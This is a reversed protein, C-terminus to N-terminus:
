HPLYADHLQEAAVGEAIWRDIRADDHGLERLIARTHAGIKPMPNAIRLSTGAFRAYTPAPNDVPSGAPHDRLRIVSISEAESWSAREADTLERVGNRRIDEIYDVRHCGFGAAGFAQEWHGVPQEAIVAQLAAIRAAEQDAAVPAAALGPVARLRPLDEPLGTLVLWGDAARYLHELSHAGLVEQGQPGDDPRADATAWVFPAQVLQGGQALSTFVLDGGGERTRRLLALAIGYAGSYGTIYDICSAFGHLEPPKGRGGYRQQIGTAAQLVPDFGPLETWPGRRPGNFATLNLYVIGPNIRALSAHDIGLREAVGPRFNHVIVDAGAALQEFLRKGAEQKLDLIMSRKGQGVELHLMCATSPLFYPDPSDIKIVDAGYEALTRACCPGALVTSLDLVKIGALIPGRPAAAASGATSQTPDASHPPAPTAQEAAAQAHVTSAPVSAPEDDAGSDSATLRSAATGNGASGPVSRLLAALDGSRAPQPVHWREATRGLSTQVGLQRIPGHVPDDVQVTLAAADTEPAHLWEQTSRHVSFPVGHARMIPTWAAAPKRRFAATMRDRVIKRFERSLGDIDQINNPRTLDPWPPLDVMGDAILADYIGLAKVLQVSNRSSNGALVFVWGGDGAQYSDFMVPLWPRQEDILRRREDKGAHRMQERLADTAPNRRRGYRVPAEAVRLLFAGMASMAAGALPVEVAEGRGSQERAYLAMTVAIAGHVAGYASALPIPTYQPPAHLARRISHLDTYVGTAANLVGEFARVSAHKEGAGFGPLSLYVLRPHVATMAAAGLGLRDMVGPRFNEVVVDAAAVLRHAAARGADSKLDLEVVQKGRNFVAGAPTACSPHGPRDIKIVEAGQDALLMAAMPGALYHGFDVVRIGALPPLGDAAASSRSDNM